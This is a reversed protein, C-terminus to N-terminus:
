QPACERELESQRPAYEEDLEAARRAQELAESCRGAEHLARAYTDIFEPRPDTEVAERALSLARDTSHGTDLLLWALGNNAAADDPALEVAREFGVLADAADGSVYAAQAMERWAFANDPHSAAVARWREAALELDGRRWAATAARAPWPDAREGQEIAQEALADAEEVANRADLLELLRSRELSSRPQSALTARLLAEAEDSRDLAVLANALVIRTWPTPHLELARRAERVAEAHRGSRNLERARNYSMKPSNPNVILTAEALTLDDRYVRNHRWTAVSGALLAACLFVGLAKRPIPLQMALTVAIFVLGLSPLYFLREAFQTGIVVVLNSAVGYAAISLGAAIGVASRPRVAVLALLGATTALGLVGYATLGSALGLVPPSYDIALPHPWAVLSVYRGAIDFVTPLREPLTTGVMPNESAGPVPGGWTGLVQFRLAAYLLVVALSAAAPPLSRRTGTGRALGLLLIAFPLFAASEKSGLALATAAACGLTGALGSRTASLLAGLVGIAALLEARGSIWTVAETHLPHVAFLAAAAAAAPLPAGIRLLFAFGLLVVAVHLLLNVAHMWGASDDAIADDIAFSLTTWPRWLATARATAPRWYPATLAREPSFDGQVAAHGVVLGSDDYVFGAELANLYPVIALAILGAVIWGRPDRRRRLGDSRSDQAM